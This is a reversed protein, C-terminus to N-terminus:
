LAASLRAQVDVFSYLVCFFLPVFFINAFLLVLCVFSIFFPHGRVKSTKGFPKDGWLSDLTDFVRAGGRQKAKPRAYCVNQTFASAARSLTEATTAICDIVLKGGVSINSAPPEFAVGRPPASADVAAAGGLAAGGLAASADSADGDDSPDDLLEEMASAEAVAALYQARAEFHHAGFPAGKPLKAAKLLRMLDAEDEPLLRCSASVHNNKQVFYGDLDISLLEQNNKEVKWEDALLQTEGCELCILALRLRCAHADPHWDDASEKVLSMLWREEGDFPTDTACASILRSCAVYDRAMLRMLVLYLRAALSKSVLFDYMYPPITLSTLPLSDFQSCSERLIYRYMFSSVKSVLFSGSVHVDYMYFRTRVHSMWGDRSRDLAITTAFPQNRVKPRVFNYSPLLISRRRARDQLVIAHPIGV